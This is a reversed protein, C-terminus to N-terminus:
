EDHNGVALLLMKSQGALTIRLKWALVAEMRTEMSTCTPVKILDTHFHDLLLHVSTTTSM